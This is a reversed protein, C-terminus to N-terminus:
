QDVAAVRKAIDGCLRALALKLQLYPKIELVSGPTPIIATGGYPVAM